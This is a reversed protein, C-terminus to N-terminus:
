MITVIEHPAIKKFTEFITDLTNKNNTKQYNEVLECFEITKSDEFGYKKIVTNMMSEFMKNELEVRNM